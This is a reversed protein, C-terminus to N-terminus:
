DVVLLEVKREKAMQASSAGETAKLDGQSLTQLRDGVVNLTTLYDQVSKARRDGLALNYEGTGRWDCHGELVLKANPNRKLYSAAADIKAREAPTISASDFSFYIPELIGSKARAMWSDLDSGGRSQLGYLAGEDNIDEPNFFGGDNNGASSNNYGAGMVTDLPNPRRPKKSCGTFALTILLASAILVIKKLMISRNTKKLPVILM